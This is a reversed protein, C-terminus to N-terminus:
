RLVCALIGLGLVRVLNNARVRHLSLSRTGEGVM